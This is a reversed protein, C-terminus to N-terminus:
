IQIRVTHLGEPVIIPATIQSYGLSTAITIGDVLYDISTEDILTDDHLENDIFASLKENIDDNM